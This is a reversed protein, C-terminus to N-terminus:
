SRVPGSTVQGTSSGRRRPGQQRTGEGRALTTPHARLLWQSVAPVSRAGPELNWGRPMASSTTAYLCVRLSPAPCSAAPPAKYSRWSLSPLLVLLRSRASIGVEAAGQELWATLFAGAKVRCCSVRAVEWEQLLGRQMNRGLVYKTIVLTLFPRSLCPPMTPAASCWPTPRPCSLPQQTEEMVIPPAPKCLPM